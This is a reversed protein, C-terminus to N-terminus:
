PDNPNPWDGAPDRVLVNQGVTHTLLVAALLGLNWASCLAPHRGECNTIAASGIQWNWSATSGGAEPMCLCVFTLIVDQIDRVPHRGLYRDYEIADRLHAVLARIEDDTLDLTMIADIHAEITRTHNRIDVNPASGVQQDARM